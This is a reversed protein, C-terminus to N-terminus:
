GKKEALYHQYSIDLAKHFDIGHADAFHRLDALLDKVNAQMDPDLATYNALAAEAREASRANIENVM